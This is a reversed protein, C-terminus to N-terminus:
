APAATSSIMEQPCWPQVFGGGLPGLADVQRLVFMFVFIVLLSGFPYLLFFPLSFVCAFSAFCRRLRSKRIFLQCWNECIDGTVSSWGHSSSLNKRSNRVRETSELFFCKEGTLIPWTVLSSKPKRLAGTRTSLGVKAIRCDQDDWVKWWVHKNQM